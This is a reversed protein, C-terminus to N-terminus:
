VLLYFNDLCFKDLFVQREYVYDFQDHTVPKIKQLDEGLVTFVFIVLGLPKRTNDSNNEKSLSQAYNINPSPPNIKRYHHSGGKITILCSCRRVEKRM